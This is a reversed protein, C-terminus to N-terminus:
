GMPPKSWESEAQNPNGQALVENEINNMESLAEMVQSIVRSDSPQKHHYIWENRSKWIFWCLLAYLPQISHEVEGAKTREELREM